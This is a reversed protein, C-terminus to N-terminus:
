LNARMLEAGKMADSASIGGFTSLGSSYIKMHRMSDSINEEVIIQEM